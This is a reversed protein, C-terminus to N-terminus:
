YMTTLYSKKVFTKGLVERDVRIVDSDVKTTVLVPKVTRALAVEAVDCEENTVKYEASWRLNILGEDLYRQIEKRRNIRECGKSAQPNHLICEMSGLGPQRFSYMADLHFIYGFTSDDNEYGYLHNLADELNKGGIFEFKIVQNSKTKKVLEIGANYIDDRTHTYFLAVRRDATAFIASGQWIIEGNENVRTSPCRKIKDYCDPTGHFVTDATIGSLPRPLFPLFSSNRLDARGTPKTDVKNPWFLGVIAVAVSYIYRGLGFEINRIQYGLDIVRNKLNM